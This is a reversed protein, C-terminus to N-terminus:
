LFITYLFINSIKTLGGLKSCCWSQLFCFTKKLNVISKIINKLCVLRHVYLLELTTTQWTPNDGPVEHAAHVGGDVVPSPSRQSNLGSFCCLTNKIWFSHPFYQVIKIMNMTGNMKGGNKYKVWNETECLITSTRTQVRIPDATQVWAAGGM